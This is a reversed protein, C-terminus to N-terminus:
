RPLGNRNENLDQVRQLREGLAIENVKKLLNHIHSIYVLM